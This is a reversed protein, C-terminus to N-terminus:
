RQPVKWNRGQVEAGRVLSDTWPLLHPHETLLKRIRELLATINAQHVTASM